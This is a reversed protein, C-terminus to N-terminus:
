YRLNITAVKSNNKYTFTSKVEVNYSSFRVTGNNTTNYYNIVVLADRNSKTVWNSGNITAGRTTTGDTVTMNGSYNTPNDMHWYIMLLRDYHGVSLITRFSTQNTRRTEIEAKLRYNQNSIKVDSQGSAKTRYSSRLTFETKAQEKVRLRSNTIQNINTVTKLEEIDEIHSTVYQKELLRYVTDGVIYMKNENMIYRMPNDFEVVECYLDGNEDEVLQIYQNNNQIFSIAEETTTFQEIDISSYFDDTINGFSRFNSNTSWSRAGVSYINDITENLEEENEFSLIRNLGSTNNEIISENNNCSLFLISTIAIFAIYFLKKM